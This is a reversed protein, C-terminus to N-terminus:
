IMTVGKNKRVHRQSLSVGSLDPDRVAPAEEQHVEPQRPALYEAIDQYDGRGQPFRPVRNQATTRLVNRYALDDGEGKTALQNRSMAVSTGRGLTVMVDDHREM